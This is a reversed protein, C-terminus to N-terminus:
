GLPRCVREVALSDELYSVPDELREDVMGAHPPLDDLRSKAAAHYALPADGQEAQGPPGFVM